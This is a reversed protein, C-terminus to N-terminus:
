RCDRLAITGFRVHFAGCFVPLDLHPHEFAKVYIACFYPAGACESGVLERIFIGM